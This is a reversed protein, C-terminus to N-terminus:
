TIWGRRRLAESGLLGLQVEQPTGKSEPHYEFRNREFYQVVYTNGDTASKEEFPESLPFGFIPLGGHSDWYAKFPSGLTHGVEPFFRKDTTDDTRAIKGFAKEGQRSQAILFGLRGLEIAYPTGAKEPHIEFRAREFYQVTYVKKDDPNWDSFAETLPYGFQGLGGNVKWYVLFDKGVNHKTEPFFQTGADGSAQAPDSPNPAVTVQIADDTDLPGGGDQMITAVFRTKQATTARIAVQVTTSEGPQLTKGIGWRYPPDSSALLEPGMAIRVGGKTGPFGRKAYTDGDSYIFDPPPDQPAIPTSGSNKITIKATLLDRGFISTAGWAVTTLDADVLTGPTQKPPAVDPPNAAVPDTSPDGTWFPMGKIERRVNNLQPYFGDGPCSTNIVGRHGSVNMVNDRDIFFSKGVPDLDAAKTRILAILSSRAADSITHDRYTGLIAIGISGWNYQLAHGGVARDGGFRGEYITGQQDILFNYGIDGWGRSVAHYQYIARLTSKPDTEPDRTVTHHVIVKKIARYEVPWIEKNEKDFRLKEDAGWGARPVITIGGVATTHFITDAPPMMTNVGTLAFQRLTPLDGSASPQAAVAYQAFRAPAGIILDGFTQADSLDRAHSDAHLHNWASWVTGDVSTRVTLDLTASRPITADWQSELANFPVDARLPPSVFTTTSVPLDHQEWRTRTAIPEAHVIRPTSFLTSATMLITLRSGARLVARRTMQREFGM